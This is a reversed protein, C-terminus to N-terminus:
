RSWGPRSTHRHSCAADALDPSRRTAASSACRSPTGARGHIGLSALPIRTEVLWKEDEDHRDNLTGDCDVGVVAHSEWKPDLRRAGLERADSTTGNASFDLDYLAGRQPRVKLSFADELYLPADHKKVTAHIDDDGAYFLVYLNKDDWLFRAESYPRGVTGTRPDKFSGTRLAHRWDPESAEGDCRIAGTTHPVVLPKAYAAPTVLAAAHPPGASAKASASAGPRKESKSHHCGGLLLLGLWHLRLRTM